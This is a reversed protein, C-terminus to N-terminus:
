LKKIKDHNATSKKALSSKLGNGTNEVIKSIILKSKEHFDMLIVVFYM